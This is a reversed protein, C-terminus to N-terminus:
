GNARPAELDVTAEVAFVVRSGCSNVSNRDLGVIQRDPPKPTHAGLHALPYADAASVFWRTFYLTRSDHTPEPSGMQNTGVTQTWDFSSGHVKAHRAETGRDDAERRAVPSPSEEPRRKEDPATSMVVISLALEARV